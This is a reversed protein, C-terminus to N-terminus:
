GFHLNIQVEPLKSKYFFRWRCIIIPSLLWFTNKIWFSYRLTRSIRTRSISLRSYKNYVRINWWAIVCYVSLESSLNEPKIDLSPNNMMEITHIIVNKDGTSGTPFWAIPFPHTFLYSPIDSVYTLTRLGPISTYYTSRSYFIIRVGHNQYM